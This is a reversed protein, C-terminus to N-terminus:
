VPEEAQKRDYDERIMGSFKAPSGYWVEFPPVDMNVFSLAGIVAGEGIRVGGSTVAHNGMVVGSGLVVPHRKQVRVSPYKEDALHVGGALFVRDGLVTGDAMWVAEQLNCEDGIVCHSGIHVYNHIKVRAGIRSAGIRNWSWVICDEGFVADPDIDNFAGAMITASGIRLPYLQGM